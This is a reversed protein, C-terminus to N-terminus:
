ASMKSEARRQAVRCADRCFEASRRGAVETRFVSGCGERACTREVEWVPSEGRWEGAWVGYAYDQSDADAKCQARVPCFVCVAIADAVEERTARDPHFQVPVMSRCAAQDRWDDTM